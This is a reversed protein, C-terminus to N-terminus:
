TIRTNRKRRQQSGAPKEAVGKTVFGQANGEVASLPVQRTQQHAKPSKRSVPVLLDPHCNACCYQIRRQKNGASSQSEFRRVARRM